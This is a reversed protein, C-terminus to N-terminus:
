HIYSLPNVKRGGIMIEFHLHTGTSRGTTGVMAITQGQNVYQGPKVFIKSAHGYLTETGDGHRIRVHYGYGYRLYQVTTVTGSAAAYIPSSYDGDIDLGYHYYTFYQNIRHSSTPWIFRVSTSVNKNPPPNSSTSAYSSSSSYSPKPPAPPAPPKGGPIVLTEGIDIMSADALRNYELISDESVSYKRAISGVSDGSAITHIVGSVPPIKLTQGPKIYDNDGLGNAWLLTNTSINFQEAITSVTDGGLVTYQKVSTSGQDQYGGGTSALSVVSEARGTTTNNARQAPAAQAPIILNAFQSRGKPPVGFIEEDIDANENFHLAAIASKKGIQEAVAERVSINSYITLMTLVILVLYSTKKHLLPYLFSNKAPLFIASGFAKM